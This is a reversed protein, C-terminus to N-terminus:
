FKLDYYKIIHISLWRDCPNMQWQTKKTVNKTTWQPIKDEFLKPGNEFQHDLKWMMMGLQYWRLLLFGQVEEVRVPPYLTKRSKVM